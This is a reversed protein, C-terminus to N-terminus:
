GEDELLQKLEEMSIGNDDLVKKVFAKRYDGRKIADLIEKNTYKKFVNCMCYVGFVNKIIQTDAEAVERLRNLLENQM